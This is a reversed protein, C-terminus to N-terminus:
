YTWKTQVKTLIFFGFPVMQNELEYIETRHFMCISKKNKITKIIAVM